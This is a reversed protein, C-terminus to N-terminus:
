HAVLVLLGACLLAAAGIVWARVADSRLSRLFLPSIMVLLASAALFGYVMPLLMPALVHNYTASVHPHWAVDYRQAMRLVLGYFCSFVVFAEAILFIRKWSKGTAPPFSCM